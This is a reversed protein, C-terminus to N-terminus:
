CIGKLLARRSICHLYVPAHADLTRLSRPGCCWRACHMHLGVELKNFLCVLRFMCTCARCLREDAIAHATNENGM